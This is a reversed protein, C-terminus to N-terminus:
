RHSNWSYLAATRGALGILLYQVIGIHSDCDAVQQQLERSATILEVDANCWRM